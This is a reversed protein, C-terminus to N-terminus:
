QPIAAFAQSGSSGVVQSSDNLGYARSLGAALDKTDGLSAGNWLTARDSGTLAASYGAIRNGANIGQASTNAGLTDAVSGNANWVVGRVEGSTLEAEGVVRGGADVGFAVSAIQLGSIPSLQSPPDFGVAAPRWVVARTQGSSNQAEGVIHGDAGIAYASSFAGGVLNGLILPDATPSPWYVAVTNGDADAVAEGVIEGADSIAFAASAGGPFLGTTSLPLPTADGAPWYVAVTNADATAAVTAGSEGVAIGAANVGYAASYSNGTLPNLPLATPAADTVTWKAGKIAAGDDAFGVALGGENIAVGVSFSSGPAALTVTDFTTGAVPPQADGGSGGGGGSCGALTLTAAALIGALYLTLRRM